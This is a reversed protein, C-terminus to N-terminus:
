ETSAPAASTKKTGKRIGRRPGVSFVLGTLVADDGEGDYRATCTASINLTSRDAAALLMVRLKDYQEKSTLPITGRQGNKFAAEMKDVWGAPVEIHDRTKPEPKAEYTATDLLAAFEDVPAAPVNKAAPM